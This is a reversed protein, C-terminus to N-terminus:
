GGALASRVISMWRRAITGNDFQSRLRQGGDRGLRTRTEPESILRRLNATLAEVDGPYSLLGTVGEIVIEPVGGSRLAVVPLSARMAEVYVLGFPEMTSPLCFIDAAELLAPLDPRQGLFRVTEEVGLENTLQRLERDHGPSHNSQGCILVVCGPVPGLAAIARILLDFGKGRDLRGAAVVVVDDDAIGLERRMAPRDAGGGADPATLNPLTSVRAEEFGRLLATQRVFESVAIVHTSARIIRTALRGLWPGYSYHLHVIHPVRCLRSLLGAFVVDKRLQSSYIVDPQFRRVHRRARALARPMDVVVSLRHRFPTGPTSLRIPERVVHDPGLPALSPHSLSMAQLEGPDSIAKILEAHVSYDAGLAGYAVEIFLVKVPESQDMTSLTPRDIGLM